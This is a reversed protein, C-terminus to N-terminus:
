GFLSALFFQGCIYPSFIPVHRLERVFAADLRPEFTEAKIDAKSHSTRRSPVAIRKRSVSRVKTASRAVRSGISADATSAVSM